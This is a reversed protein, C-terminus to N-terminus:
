GLRSWTSGSLSWLHIPQPAGQTPQDVSGLILLRGSSTDTLEVSPFVPLRAGVLLTWDQGSWTWMERGSALAPDGCMIIRGREPDVALGAIFAPQAGTIIRHWESGTWSWTSVMAQDQVCCSAALLTTTSPDVAMGAFFIGAPVDGGPQREWRVGTWIWTTGTSNGQSSVLVMESRAADWAMRAGEGPPPNGTGADLEQWTTGEWAWTDNVVDGPGLRGGYVMVVRTLPDYAAAQGFRGPPSVAPHALSWRHGDWLWTSDYSDVGGFLVLQHRSPDDTASFGSGLVPEGPVPTATPTPPPGSALTPAATSGVIATSAPQDHTLWLGAALAALVTTLLLGLLAAHRRTVPDRDRRFDDDPPMDM